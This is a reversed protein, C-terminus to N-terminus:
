RPEVTNGVQAIKIQRKANGKSAAHFSSRKRYKWEHIPRCQRGELVHSWQRDDHRTDCRPVKETAIGRRIQFFLYKVIVYFNKFFYEERSAIELFFNLNLFFSLTRINSIDKQATSDSICYFKYNSLIKFVSNLIDNIM